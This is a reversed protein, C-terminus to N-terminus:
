PQNLALGPCEYFEITEERAWPAESLSIPQAEGLVLVGCWNSRQRPLRPQLACRGFSIRWDAVMLGESDFSVCNAVDSIRHRPGFQRGRNSSRRACSLRMPPAM